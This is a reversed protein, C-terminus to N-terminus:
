VQCPEVAEIILYVRSSFTMEKNQPLLRQLLDHGAPLELKTGTSPDAEVLEPRAKSEETAVAVEDSLIVARRDCTKFVYDETVCKRRGM